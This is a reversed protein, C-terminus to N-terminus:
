HGVTLNSFTTLNKYKTVIIRITDVLHVYEVVVLYGASFVWLFDVSVEVFSCFCLVTMRWDCSQSSVNM